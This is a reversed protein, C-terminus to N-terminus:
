ISVLITLPVIAVEEDGMDGQFVQISGEIAAHSVLGGLTATNSSVDDVEVAATISDLLPNLIQSPIVSADQQANTRVYVLLEIQFKWLTPMGKRYVAEESKQRQLLAPSEEGPVADWHKADRTATKFAPQGGVTLNSWFEFLREYIVERNLKQGILNQHVNADTADTASGGEAVTDLLSTPHTNDLAAGTEAAAAAFVVVASVQEGASAAEPVSIPGLVTADPTDVASAVEARAATTQVVASATDAGVGGENLPSFTILLASPSDVASIAEQASAAAILIASAQEAAAVAESETATGSVPAEAQRWLIGPNRGRLSWQTIRGLNDQYDVANVAEVVIAPTTLTASPADSAAGSESAVAGSTSSQGYFKPGWLIGHQRGRERVQAAPPFGVYHTDVASAIESVAAATVVGASPTDVANGAEAVSLISLGTVFGRWIIQTHRRHLRIM